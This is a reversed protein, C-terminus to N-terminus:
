GSSVGDRLCAEGPSISRPAGSSSLIQSILAGNGSLYLVAPFERDGTGAGSGSSVVGRRRRALRDFVADADGPGKAHLESRALIRALTALREHQLLTASPAGTGSTGAETRLGGTEIWADLVWCDAASANPRRSV